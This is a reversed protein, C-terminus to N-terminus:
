SAILAFTTKVNVIAAFVAILGDRKEKGKNPGIIHPVIEPQPPAKKGILLPSSGIRLPKCDGIIVAHRPDERTWKNKFQKLSPTTLAFSFACSWRAKNKIQTPTTSPSPNFAFAFILFSYCDHFIQHKWTPSFPPIGLCMGGRVLFLTFNLIYMGGSHGLRLGAVETLM